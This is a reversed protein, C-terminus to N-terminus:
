QVLETVAREILGRVAELRYARTGRVDDIPALPALADPAALAARVRASLEDRAAGLLAAELAPLRQAAASCAGVAVGCYSVRAAADFDLVAAVMAISIVLYRRHGLKLFVSRARASRAPVRVAILLEDARLATRRNGLVFQALPLERRGAASALEVTADLALLPPIGDAAPSANCLNGGVTGRNQIQLGGIERAAQALAACHPPLAAQALDTWTTLAGVRLADGEDAVGRLEGLASVDLVPQPLPREVHAAFVDTGGALVLHPARALAQLAQAVQGPREYAGSGSRQSTKM